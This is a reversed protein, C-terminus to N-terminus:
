RPTQLCARTWIGRKVLEVMLQIPINSALSNISAQVLACCVLVGLHAAPEGSAVGRKDAEEAARWLRSVDNLFGSYSGELNEWAHAWGECVLPRLQDVDAKKKELHTGYFQVIYEPADVPQLQAKGLKELTEQGWTLFHAEWLRRAHKSLHEEYFYYGLKPHSFVFGQKDGDGVIFRALPKIAEELEWSTLGVAEPTLYLIDDRTLPGLACSLIELIAQVAKERLPNDKGWLRNQDSWWKDFYGSLGPEIGQLDEPQLRVVREGKQWLDDVYLRLLLPDGESLRYLEEVIDVCESLQALPFGMNFLVSATGAISLLNLPFAQALDGRDWGLRQLWSEADIDGAQFRASVVIRVGPPPNMPFLDPGIDWDAAEDVGDLIVLLTRGDPPPRHLYDTIQNRWVEAPTGMQEKIEEGYLAALRVALAAFCVGALNTRFRISVPVFALGIDDRSLLHQSWQVLLASKGRGAPAALM